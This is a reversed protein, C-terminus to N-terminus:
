LEKFNERYEGIKSDKEISLINRSSFKLNKIKLKLNELGKVASELAQWTFNM